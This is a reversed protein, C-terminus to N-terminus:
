EVYSIKVRLGAEVFGNLSQGFPSSSLEDPEYSIIALSVTELVDVGADVAEDLLLRTTLMTVLAENEDDKGAHIALNLDTLRPVLPSSSSLDGPDDHEATISLHRLFSPTLMSNATGNTSCDAFEELSLIKLTPLLRLLSLIQEDTFPVWKMHLSTLCCASRIIFDCIPESDIETYDTCDRYERSEDGRVSLSTMQPLTLSQFPFNIHILHWATISLDKVDLTAPKLLREPTPHPNDEPDEGTGILRLTILRSCSSLFLRADDSRMFELELSTIQNWPLVLIPELDVHRLTVNHLAPCSSFCDLERLNDDDYIYANIIQLHELKPLRNKLASFVIHRHLMESVGVSMTVSVWRESSQIITTLVEILHPESPPVLNLHLVLTLLAEKSRDLFLQILRALKQFHGKWTYLVIEFSSWLSPVSLSINRWRKCVASVTLAPPRKTRELETKDCLPKFINFLIEPPLQHIPSLLSRYGEIKKKLRNRKTELALIALKLRSIEGEYGKMEKEASWIFQTLTKRDSSTVTHPLM